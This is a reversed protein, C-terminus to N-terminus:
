DQSCEQALLLLNVMRRKGIKKTPLHGRDAMGRVADHTLGSLLAFREYTAVPVFPFLDLQQHESDIM